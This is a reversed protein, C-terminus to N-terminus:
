GSTLHISIVLMLLNCIYVEIRCMLYFIWQVACSHQCILLDYGFSDFQNFGPQSKVVFLSGFLLCVLGGAKVLRFQRQIIDLGVWWAGYHIVDFKVNSSMLKIDICVYYYWIYYVLISFCFYCECCCYWILVADWCYLFITELGTSQALIHCRPGLGLAM